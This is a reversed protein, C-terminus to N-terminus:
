VVLGPGFRERLVERAETGFWNSSLNIEEVNRLHPSRALALAGANGIRNLALSLRTM